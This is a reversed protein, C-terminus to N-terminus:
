ISFSIEDRHFDYLKKNYQDQETKKWVDGWSIKYKETWTPLEENAYFVSLECSFDRLCTYDLFLPISVAFGRFMKLVSPGNNFVRHAISEIYKCVM